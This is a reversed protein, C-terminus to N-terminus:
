ILCTILEDTPLNKKLRRMLNILGGSIMNGIRECTHDHRYSYDCDKNSDVEEPPAFNTSKVFTAPRLWRCRTISLRAYLLRGTALRRHLGSRVVLAYIFSTLIHTRRSFHVCRRPWLLQFSTFRVSLGCLTGVDKTYM